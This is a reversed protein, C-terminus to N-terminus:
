LSSLLYVSISNMEFLREGAGPVKNIVIQKLALSNNVESKTYCDANTTLYASNTTQISLPSTFNIARVKNDGHGSLRSTNTLPMEGLIFRIQKTDLSIDVETKTYTTSQNAKTGILNTISTSFNPDNNLATALEKM